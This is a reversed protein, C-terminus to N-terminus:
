PEAVLTEFSVKSTVVIPPPTFQEVHYFSFTGLLCIVLKVINRIIPFSHRKNRKENRSKVFYGRWLCFLTQPQGEPGALKGLEFPLCCRRKGAIDENVKTERKM